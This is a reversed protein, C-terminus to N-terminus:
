NNPSKVSLQAQLEAAMREFVDDWRGLQTQRFLRMTPYWPSDERHLLWRWEPVFPLAIWVPVGLAGALHPIATDCSIVLDLNKMIAATDMFAGAKEDLRAGLDMVEFAGGLDALQETGPGKQLSILKVGPIRGLGAFQTLPMARTHEQHSPDTQWTIGIKFIGEGGIGRGSAPLPLIIALDRRWQDVLEPNAQLYPVTRPITAMTTRFISPLSLLAAQVDFSPLEAGTAVLQDIGACGALVNRLPRPCEMIVKGGRERVLPVYRIFHFSDGLGQEAYLLITRGHLPSGDWRPQAFQRRAHAYHTWRWEYEPWGREFDGRLLWLVSRNWRALPLEPEIRLATEVCALADDYRGRSRYANGLNTHALAFNPRRRLAEQYCVIAQDAKGQLFLANGLNNHADAFDPSIQLARQCHRVAEDLRGQTRLVDGLGNHADAYQPDCTLAERFCVVAQDFQRLARYALGLNSHYHAATPTLALAKHISAIAQDFRGTQYALVGLLHHADAHGPDMQLVQSYLQEAQAYAGNQHHRYALTFIEAVTPM